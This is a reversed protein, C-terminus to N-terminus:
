PAKTKAHHARSYITFFSNKTLNAQRRAADSAKINKDQLIVSPRPNEKWLFPSDPHEKM